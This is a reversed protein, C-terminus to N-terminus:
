PHRFLFPRVDGLALGRIVIPDCRGNDCRLGRACPPTCPVTVATCVNSVCNGSQCQVDDHCATGNPSVTCHGDAGCFLSACQAWNSPDCAAGVNRLCIKGQPFQVCSLGPCDAPGQCAKGTKDEEPSHHFVFFWVLAGVVVLVGAVVALIWWPFPKVPTIVPPPVVVAVSPGEVSQEEGTAKSTSVMNLRFKCTGAKEAAPVAIRVIFQQAQDPAFDRESQDAIKFWSAQAPDDPKIEARGRLAGSSQNTVTFSVEGSRNKDQSLKPDPTTVTVAFAPM